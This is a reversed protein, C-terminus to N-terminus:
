KIENIAIERIRKDIRIELELKANTLNTIKTCQIVLTQQPPIIMTGMTTTENREQIATDEAQNALLTKWKENIRVQDTTPDHQILDSEALFKVIRQLKDQTIELKAAVEDTNHWVNDGLLNLFRELKASLTPNGV